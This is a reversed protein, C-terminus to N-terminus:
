TSESQLVCEEKKRRLLVPRGDDKQHQSSLVIDETIIKQQLETKWQNLRILLFFVHLVTLSIVQMNAFIAM